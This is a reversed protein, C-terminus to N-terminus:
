PQAPSRNPNPDPNPYPNPHPNPHPNPNPLQHPVLSQTFIKPKQEMNPKVCRIYRTRSQNTIPMLSALKEKFKTVVLYKANESQGKFGSGIPKPAM